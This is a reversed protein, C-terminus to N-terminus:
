AVVAFAGAKTNGGPSTLTTPSTGWLITATFHFKTGIDTSTFSQSITPTLSAGATMTIVASQATFGATGTGDVGIITIQAYVTISNPNTIKATWIQMNSTKALSLHHTWSLKGAFFSVPAPAVTIVTAATASAVPSGNDTATFTVTVSLGGQGSVPTWTFTGSTPNGPVSTFTAGAPLGTATLTVIESPDLADAATVTFSMSVGVAASATPPATITPPNNVVGTVTVSQAASTQSVGNADTGTVTVMFTGAAYTHTVPNGTGTTTDGFNWSFTFPVVGGTTTATFQVPTSTTPSAPSFTFTIATFAPAVVVSQPASTASVGNADMATVTVSFTGAAYSHTVPNGTGTTTDGFIWSFTFPAVGGTTTATFQVSIGVEPTAPTFIFAAASLRAAVVLNQAASTVSVSDADTATVTVSFTGAASYSHSAPNGTGTTTDGFNWSFTFPGVGGTTTATFQVAVGVEPTAPTFTFAAATLRAAVVVNQAPSTASVGNADTATVTVSFTGAATYSHSV